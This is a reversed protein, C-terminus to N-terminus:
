RGPRGTFLSSTIRLKFPRIDAIEVAGEGAAVSEVLSGFEQRVQSKGLKRLAKFNTCM